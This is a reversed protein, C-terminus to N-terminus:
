CCDYIYAIIPGLERSLASHSLWELMEWGTNESSTFVVSEEKFNTDQLRIELM